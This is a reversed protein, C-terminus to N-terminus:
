QCSSVESSEISEFLIVEKGRGVQCDRLDELSRNEEDDSLNRGAELECIHVV